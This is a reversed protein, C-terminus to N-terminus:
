YAINSIQRYQDQTCKIHVEHNVGEEDVLYLYATSNDKKKAGLAAGAITGLPGAVVTGLIAGGAAKGVSRSGSPEWSIRSFTFHKQGFLTAIEVEGSKRGKMVSMRNVLGKGEVNDTLAHGGSLVAVPVRPRFVQKWFGM